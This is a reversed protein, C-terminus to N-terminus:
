LLESRPSHGGPDRLARPACIEVEKSADTRMLLTLWGFIRIM